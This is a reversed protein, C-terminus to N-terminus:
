NLERYKSNLRILDEKKIIRDKEFKMLVNSVFRMDDMHDKDNFPRTDNTVLVKRLMDIKNLITDDHSKSESGLIDNVAVFLSKTAGIRQLEETRENADDIISNRKQQNDKSM